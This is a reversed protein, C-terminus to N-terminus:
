REAVAKKNVRGVSRKLRDNIFKNMSMGRIEAAQRIAETLEDSMRLPFNNRKEAM